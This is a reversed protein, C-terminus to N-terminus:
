SAKKVLRPFRGFQRSEYGLEDIYKKAHNFQIRNVEVTKTITNHLELNFPKGKHIIEVTEILTNDM